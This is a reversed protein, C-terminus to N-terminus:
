QDNETIFSNDRSIGLKELVAEEKERMIAASLKDKEHDYGLIHFMSHTVLFGMERELTHGYTKAQIVAKEVSIVIDGLIYYGTEPNVDFVGNEGLPFSLVDTERNKSRYEKNLKRIEENDIFYVSIEADHAFGEELLVAGCCRRILLRMGNPIKVKKQDNRISVKIKAMKDNREIFYMIIVNYNNKGTKKM